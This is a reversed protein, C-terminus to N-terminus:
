MDNDSLHWGMAGINERLHELNTSKCITVINKKSILWNLVIQAKTKGYKESLKDLLPHPQLLFGREIPRFAIVLVDNNQCYPIIESEM